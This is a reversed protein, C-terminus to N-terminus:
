KSRMERKQMEALVEEQSATPGQLWQSIIVDAMDLRVEPDPHIMGNILQIFEDSAELNAHEIHAQWFKESKNDRILRYFRNSAAAVEMPM